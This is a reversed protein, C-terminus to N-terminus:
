ELCFDVPLLPIIKSHFSFSHKFQIVLTITKEKVQQM